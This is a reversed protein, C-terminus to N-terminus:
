DYVADISWTGTARDLVLRYVAGDALAVDWEERSWATDTWWEGATRWPGASAVVPGRLGPAEVDHPSGGRLRVRASLPPSFRRCALTAADSLALAAVAAKRGIGGTFSAVGIAAPRHTDGLVPAGVRDRGVLASLQGLMQALEHPSPRNGELLDPQVPRLPAAEAEVALSVIPAPLTFGELDARLLGLLTRPERLPAVLPLRRRHVAGGALGFVLGLATAGLERLALRAALRELLRRLVFVLADLTAVEWDLSLAESWQEPAQAAVFPGGDEGRALAQLRAGPTGLRTALAPGPLAALEGLTEIGWRELCAALDPPPELLAVPLPALFAPEQGAPVVTVGSAVRAALAAVTRTGAIGVRAPLDLSAAGQALREGLRWEEGFLERLGTLDLHVRDPATVEVRPSTARAVDLLAAAASRETEPDRDRGVLGPARTLAEGVGMGPRVGAAWAEATVELVTRTAPTGVLAAVLRGRLTPDRRGLAVAAFHPVWLCAYRMM